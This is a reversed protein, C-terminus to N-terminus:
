TISSLNRSLTDIVEEVEIQSLHSLRSDLEHFLIEVIHWFLETKKKTWFSQLPQFNKQLENHLESVAFSFNTASEEQEAFNQIWTIANNLANEILSKNS